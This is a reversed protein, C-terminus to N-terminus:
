LVFAINFTNFLIHISIPAFVGGSKARVLCLGVSLVVLGLLASLPVSGIHMVSFIVSTAIVASWVSSGGIFQGVSPFLLGRFVVEEIVGAGLTAALLVVVLYTSFEANKILALTEHGMQNPDEIGISSFLAHAISSTGLALPTFIVFGIFIIGLNHRINPPKVFLMYVFVVPIQAIIAGGSVWALQEISALEGHSMGFLAGLSGLLLSGFFLLVAVWLPMPLTPM